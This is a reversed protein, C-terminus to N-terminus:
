DTNPPGRNRNPHAESPPEDYPEDIDLDEADDFLGMQYALAPALVPRKPIKLHTLIKGIVSPDTLTALLKM